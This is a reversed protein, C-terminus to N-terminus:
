REQLPKQPYTHTFICLDVGVTPKMISLNLKAATTFMDCHGVKQTLLIEKNRIWGM